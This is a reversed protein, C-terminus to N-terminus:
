QGLPVMLVAAHGVCVTLHVAKQPPALYAGWREVLLGSAAHRAAHLTHVILASSAAHTRSEESAERSTVAIRRHTSFQM